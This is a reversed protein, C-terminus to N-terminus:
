AAIRLENELPSVLANVDLILGVGGDSLIAAGALFRNARFLDGLSKIVIEQKGVLEDVLVCRVDQGSELVIVIGDTPDRHRPELDFSEYLRLLPILQGRIDVLEGRGHLNSVMGPKVRLSERVSLTPIVFPQGGVKVLMGDIIALTLPLHISFVTGQGPESDIEVKGHLSEINRRVVDMGVGRGSLDTVSDATSFGPAFILEHVERDSLTMDATVIGNEIAKALIRERNLGAGDDRLEIVINGGQHRARLNISGRGPKGSQERVDSAEIGHDVSNRIMHILPDGIQEVITRDLETDEGQTVFEVDKGVQSGIDRVLRKMKSFCGQLPVMRMSMAIRQLERTARRLMALNGARSDGDEGEHQIETVVLSQAVVIEGVLNVLSDLKDTSVKITASESRAAPKKTVAPSMPAPQPEPEPTVTASPSPVTEVERPPGEEGALLSEVEAIQNSIPIAIPAVPSDGTIQREIEAVFQGLTDGGELIVNIVGADIVLRDSRVRDLLDELRHALEKIPILNLFGAGGKFTHFARFISNITDQDTPNGELDLVGSEINALHEKSENIFEQLLELDDEVNLHITSEDTTGPPETQRAPTTDVPTSEGMSFAEGTSNASPDLALEAQAWALWEQLANLTEESFVAGESFVRDIVVGAGAIGEALSQPLDGSEAIANLDGLHCNIPLLGADNGVESFVLEVAIQEVLKGANNLAETRSDSM